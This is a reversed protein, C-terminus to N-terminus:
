THTTKCYTSFNSESLFSEASAGGSHEHSRSFSWRDALRRRTMRLDELSHRAIDPQCSKGPRPLRRPM